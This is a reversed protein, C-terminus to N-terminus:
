LNKDTLFVRFVPAEQTVLFFNPPFVSGYKRFREIIQITLTIRTSSNHLFGKVYVMIMCLTFPNRIFQSSIRIWKGFREIIQITLTIRTSSNHLFGKVYVM